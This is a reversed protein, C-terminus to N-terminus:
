RGEKGQREFAARAPDPGTSDQKRASRVRPLLRSVERGIRRGADRGDEIAHVFHIGGYVRSLRTERAADSIRSFRRTVGPLPTSAATFSHRDGLNAILVEAAAASTIAAASPYEPIPPILFRPPNENPWLLPLWEADPETGPNGDEGARRIATYPRWSRFRYKADFVLVDADAIAFAMLAMIRASRWPDLRLRDIVTHAIRNWTDLPEFWFRAIETQEPTRTTSDIRGISKLFNLDRAYRASGLPDPGGFRHRQRNIAFPELRGWGPFLAIPGLPPVDFPPTFAYDGPRGTPVYPPETIPGTSPPWRGVPVGDGARRELNALACQRGLAVGDSKPQGNPVEALAAAYESEIRASHDPALELMVDHAAAAVAAPLSAGPAALDATYPEYRREIGNVADHIAAHLIAYGRGDIIPGPQQPFISAAVEGWRTVPNRAGHREEGSAPASGAVAALGAAMVAAQLTKRVSM